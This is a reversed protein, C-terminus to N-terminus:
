QGNPNWDEITLFLCLSALIIPKHPIYLNIGIIQPEVSSMDVHWPLTRNLSIISIGSVNSQLSVSTVNFSGTLNLTSNGDSLETGPAFIEGFGITTDNPPQFGFWVGTAPGNALGSYTQNNYRVFALVGDINVYPDFQIKL